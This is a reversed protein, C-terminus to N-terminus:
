FVGECQRQVKVLGILRARQQRELRERWVSAVFRLEYPKFHNSDLSKAQEQSLFALSAIGDAQEGLLAVKGLRVTESVAETM